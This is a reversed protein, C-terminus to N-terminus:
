RPSYLLGRARTAVLVGHSVNVQHKIRILDLALSRGLRARQKWSGAEKASLHRLEALFLTSMVTRSGCPQLDIGM